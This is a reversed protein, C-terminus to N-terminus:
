FDRHLNTIRRAKMEFARHEKMAQYVGYTDRNCMATEAIARYAIAVSDLAKVLAKYDDNM